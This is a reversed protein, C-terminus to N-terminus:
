KKIAHVLLLRQNKWEYYYKGTRWDDNTGVMSGVVILLRSNKRFQLFEATDEFLFNIQLLNSPFFVEGSRADVIALQRCNLGCGWVVITYHGAFNPGERAGNRIVTRYIRARPSSIKAAAPRGSFVQAPYKQLRLSQAAAAQVSIGLFLILFTSKM